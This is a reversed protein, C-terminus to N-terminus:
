RRPDGKGVRNKSNVPRRPSHDGAEPSLDADIQPLIRNGRETAGRGEAGGVEMQAQPSPRRM